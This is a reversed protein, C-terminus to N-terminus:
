PCRADWAIAYVRMKSGGLSVATRGESQYIPCLRPDSTQRGPIQDPFAMLYRVDRARMIEWVAETDYRDGIEPSVLGAIDLIPRLAFYGVAGIDHIALLHEYPLESAIWQAPAVMEENIVAVDQRYITPGLILGFYVFVLVTSIGLVSSLVRGIRSRRGQRMLAATGVVGLLIFGPLAPIVYRGHQYAAPLRAAYLAILTVGWILPLLRLLARRETRAKRVCDATFAILGPILLVQGGAILPFTMMALREPYSFGRVIPLHQIYKADATAPLLGGTLHLNLLAYPATLVGFGLAAGMCWLFFRAWSPQPRVLVLAVGCLGALVISEPRTLMTFAAVAGFLLGRQIIYLWGAEAYAYESEQWTLSILGLTWLCFLLTEMGSAAAWALHWALALALGGLVVTPNHGGTLWAVMRAGMMLLFIFAALGLVHTWLQYPYDLMYGAALLLTYLPATSAASPQGQVFSWEGYDVLNRAYVQHIWSDDLPFGGGGSLVYISMVLGCATILVGDRWTAKGRLLSMYGRM